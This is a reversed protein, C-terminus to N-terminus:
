HPYLRVRPRGGPILRLWKRSSKHERYFCVSLGGSKRRYLRVTDGTKLRIHNSLHTPLRLVANGDRLFSVKARGNSGPQLTM